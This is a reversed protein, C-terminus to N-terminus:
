GEMILARQQSEALLFDVFLKIDARDASNRNIKLYINRGTQLPADLAYILRGALLADGVLNKWGIILGQGKEAADILV